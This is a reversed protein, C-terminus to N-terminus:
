QGNPGESIWFVCVLLFDHIVNKLIIPKANLCKQKQISIKHSSYRLFSIELKHRM